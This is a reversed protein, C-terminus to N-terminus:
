FNFNVHLNGVGFVLIRVAVTLFDLTIQLRWLKNFYFNMIICMILLQLGTLGAASYNFENWILELRVFWCQTQPQASCWEREAHRLGQERFLCIFTTQLKRIYAFRSEYCSKRKEHTKKNWTRQFWNMMGHVVVGKEQNLIIAEKLFMSHFIIKWISENM